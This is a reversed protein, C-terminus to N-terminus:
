IIKKVAEVIQMPSHTPVIQTMRFGSKDLLEAYEKATREKGGTFMLMQVDLIKAPSPENGEPVIMEVILVRGNPNMASHINKLIRISEADDWDHIIHKMIYADAGSPVSEFFDGSVKEIRNAAGAKEFFEGGDAIVSPIDFLIGRANPNAQLIGSLLIGHGGAIDAITGFRSFDYAKVIPSVDALSNSTMARNFITGIEPNEEFYEWTTKGYAKEHAMKGTEVSHRLNKVTQWSWDDGMMLAFDRMSNPNDKVLLAALPTLEFKGDANEAFFGVGALMRLVRYLAAADTSTREALEEASMAKENVFDAIGLEAIVYISKQVVTGFLFQFMMAVPPIQPMKDDEKSEM